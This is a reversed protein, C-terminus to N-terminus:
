IHDIMTPHGLPCSGGYYDFQGPPDFVAELTWHERCYSRRCTRCWFPAFERCEARLADFDRREIAAALTAVAIHDPQDWIGDVFADFDRLGYAFDAGTLTFVLPSLPPSEPDSRVLVTVTAARVGHGEHECLAEAWVSRSPLDTM